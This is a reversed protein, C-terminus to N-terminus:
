NHLERNDWSLKIVSLSLVFCYRKLFIQPLVTRFISILNRHQREQMWGEKSNRTYRQNVQTEIKNRFSFLSSLRTSWQYAWFFFFFFDFPICPNHAMFTTNKFLSKTLTDTHIPTNWLFLLLWCKSNQFLIFELCLPLLKILFLCTFLLYQSPSLLCTPSLVACSFYLPFSLVLIIQLLFYCFMFRSFLNMM